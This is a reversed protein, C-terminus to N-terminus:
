TYFHCNKEGGCGCWFRLKERFTLEQGAAASAAPLFRRHIHDSQSVQLVREIVAASERRRVHHHPHPPSHRLGGSEWHQVHRSLVNSLDSTLESHFWKEMVLFRSHSSSFQPTVRDDKGCPKVTSPLLTEHRARGLGIIPHHM